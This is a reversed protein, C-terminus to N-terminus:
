RRGLRHGRHRAPRRAQATRPRQPRCGALPGDPTHVYGPALANVRISEPGNQAAMTGPPGAVGVNNVLIDLRGFADVTQEVVGACVDPDTVDATLALAERGRESILRQTETMKEPVSDVVVVQAGAEALLVAAARGNGIGPARSGGGTVIAVKGQLGFDITM